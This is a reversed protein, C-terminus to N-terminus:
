HKPYRNHVVDHLTIGDLNEQLIEGIFTWLNCAHEDQYILDDERKSVRRAPLSDEAAIMIDAISIDELGRALMYGGGPGRSSKVLKHRRLAAFLQELYSLSIMGRGAIDALPIPSNGQAREALEIMSLVAYRGRTTLKLPPAKFCNDSQSQAPHPATM